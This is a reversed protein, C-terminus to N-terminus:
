GEFRFRMRRPPPADPPPAEEIDPIDPPAPALAMAPEALPPDDVADSTAGCPPAACDEEGGASDEALFELHKLMGKGVQYATQVAEPVLAADNFDEGYDVLGDVNALVPDLRWLRRLARNRLREPVARALFGTVDDGPQLSDPDPLGLEALIEDDPRADPEARRADETRAARAEREAQDAAAVAAKRNTWFDAGRTM